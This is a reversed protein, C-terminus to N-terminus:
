CVMSHRSVIMNRPGLATRTVVQNTMHTARSITSLRSSLRAKPCLEWRALLEISPDVGYVEDAGSRYSALNLGSGIGVELVRGRAAGVV